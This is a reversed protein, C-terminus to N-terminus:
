RHLLATIISFSGVIFRHYHYSNYDMSHVKM